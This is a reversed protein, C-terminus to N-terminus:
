SYHNLWSRDRSHPAIAVIANTHHGVCPREFFGAYLNLHVPCSPSDSRCSRLAELVRRAAAHLPSRHPLRPVDRPFM